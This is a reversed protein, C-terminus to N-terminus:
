FVNQLINQVLKGENQPGIKGRLGLRASVAWKKKVGDIVVAHLWGNQLLSDQDNANSLDFFVIISGM